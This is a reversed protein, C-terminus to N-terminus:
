DSKLLNEFHSKAENLREETNGDLFIHNFNDKIYTRAGCKKAADALKVARNGIVWDRKGGVVLWHACSSGHESSTPLLEVPNIEAPCLFSLWLGVDSPVSDFVAGDIKKATDDSIMKSKKGDSKDLQKLANLLVLGGFSIGYIYHQKGSYETNLLGILTAYDSVIGQLTTKTNDSPVYGRYDYLYVDLGLERFRKFEDYIEGVVMANGQAVLLYGRAPPAAKWVLGRIIAGDQAKFEKKELVEASHDEWRAEAYPNRIASKFGKVTSAEMFCTHSFGGEEAHSFSCVFGLLFTAIRKIYM